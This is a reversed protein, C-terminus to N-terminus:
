LINVPFHCNVTCKESFLHLNYLEKKSLTFKGDFSDDDDDCLRTPRDYFGDAAVAVSQNCKYNWKIVRWFHWEMTCLATSPEMQTRRNQDEEEEEKDRIGKGAPVLWRYSGTASFTHGPINGTYFSPEVVWRRPPVRFSLPMSMSNACLVVHRCRLTLHSALNLLPSRHSFFLPWFRCQLPIAPLPVSLFLWSTGNKHSVVKSQLTFPTM